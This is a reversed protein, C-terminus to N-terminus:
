EIYGGGTREPLQPEPKKEEIKHVNRSQITALVSDIELKAATVVKDAAEEFLEFQYPLNAVIERYFGDISRILSDRDSKNLNKKNLIEKSNVMFDKLKESLKKSLLGFSKRTSVAETDIQPPDEVSVGGISDITCPVGLGVNMTTLLESFQAASLKVEVVDGRIPGYFRQQGDPSMILQAKAVRLVVFQDHRPLKSGFLNGPNGSVRAFSVLGFSPHSFTKEEM